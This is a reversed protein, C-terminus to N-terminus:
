HRFAAPFLIHWFMLQGGVGVCGGCCRFVRRGVDSGRGKLAYGDTFGFVRQRSYGQGIQGLGHVFGAGAGAPLPKHGNLRQREGIQQFPAVDHHLRAGAAALGTAIKQGHQGPQGGVELRRLGKHQGGRPFQGHLDLALGGCQKRARANDSDGNVAAHAVFFLHIGQAVPGLEDHAGGAAHQVMQQAAGKVELVQAFQNKVLGVAHEGDAKVRVHLLYLAIQGAPGDMGAQKRGRIRRVHELQGPLEHRRRGHKGKRLFFHVHGLHLVEEAFHLGHIFVAGQHPQQLRFIGSRGDNKAIGLGVDVIHRPDQLAKAVAGVLKGGVKGLGPALGHQFLDTLALQLIKHGSVNGRAANINGFQRVHEQVLRGFIVFAVDMACAARAAGSGCARNNGQHVDHLAHFKVADGLVVLDAEDGQGQGRVFVHGAHRSGAQCGNKLPTKTVERTKLAHAHGAIGLQRAVEGGFPSIVLVAGQQQGHQQIRGM